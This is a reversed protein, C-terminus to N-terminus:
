PWVLLLNREDPLFLQVAFQLLLLGVFFTNVIVLDVRATLRGGTAFSLILAAYVMIWLEGFLLVLTFALPSDVQSLIEPVLVGFGAITLMPGVLSDRRRRWAVLGCAAFSAGSLSHFVDNLAMPPGRDFLLPILAPFSAVAAATWLAVWFWPARTSATFRSLGEVRRRAVPRAVLDRVEGAWPTLGFM